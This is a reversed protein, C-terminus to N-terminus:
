HASTYYGHYKYQITKKTKIESVEQRERVMETFPHLGSPNAIYEKEKENERMFVNVFFSEELPLRYWAFTEPAIKM